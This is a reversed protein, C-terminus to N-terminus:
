YCSAYYDAWMSDWHAHHEEACERCLMVDANPDPADENLIRDYRDFPTTDYATRSSEAKVGETKGCCECSGEPHVKAEWIVDEGFDFDGM